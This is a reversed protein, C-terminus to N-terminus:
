LGTSVIDYKNKGLHIKVKKIGAKYAVVKLKNAFPSNYGYIEPTIAHCMQHLIIEDHAKATTFTSDRFYIVKPESNCFGTLAIGRGMGSDAIWDPMYRYEYQNLIKQEDPTFCLKILHRCQRTLNSTKYSGRLFGNKDNCYNLGVYGEKDAVKVKLWKGDVEEEVFLLSDKNVYGIAKGGPTARLRLSIWNYTTYNVKKIGDETKNVTKDSAKVTKNSKKDSKFISVVKTKIDGFSIGKQRCFYYGAGGAAIIVLLIILFVILKKNAPKRQKPPKQHKASRAAEVPRAQQVVTAM